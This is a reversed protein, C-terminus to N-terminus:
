SLALLAMSKHSSEYCRCGCNKSTVVVVRAFSLLKTNIVMHSMLSCKEPCSYISLSVDDPCKHTQWAIIEKVIIQQEGKLFSGVSVAYILYHMSSLKM